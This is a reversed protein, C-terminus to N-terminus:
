PKRPRRLKAILNQEGAMEDIIERLGKANMSIIRTVDGQLVINYGEPYVRLRSLQEHLQTAPFTGNIYYTSSYNGGKTIKLRRTVTWEERNLIITPNEKGETKNQEELSENAAMVM